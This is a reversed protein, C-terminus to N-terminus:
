GEEAKGEIVMEGGGGLVGVQVEVGRGREGPGKKGRGEEGWVWRGSTEREGVGMGGRGDEEKRRGKVGAGKGGRIKWGGREWKGERRDPEGVM